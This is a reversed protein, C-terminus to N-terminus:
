VNEKTCDDRGCSPCTYNTTNAFRTVTHDALRCITNIAAIALAQWLPRRTM